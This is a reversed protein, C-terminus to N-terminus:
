GTNSIGEVHKLFYAIKIFIHIKTVISMLYKFHAENHGSMDRRQFTVQCLNDGHHGTPSRIYDPGVRCPCFFVSNTKIELHSAFASNTKIELHSAGNNLRNIGLLKLGEETM